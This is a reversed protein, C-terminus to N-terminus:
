NDYLEFRTSIKRVDRGANTIANKIILLNFIELGIALEFDKFLKNKIEGVTNYYFVKSFGVDV